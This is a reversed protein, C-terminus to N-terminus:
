RNAWIYMQADFKFTNFLEIMKNVRERNDSDAQIKALVEEIRKIDMELQNFM